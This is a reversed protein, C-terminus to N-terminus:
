QVPGRIFPLQEIAELVTDHQLRIQRIYNARQENQEPAFPHHVNATAGFGQVRPGEPAPIENTGTKITIHPLRNKYQLEIKVASIGGFAARWAGDTMLASIVAEEAARGEPGDGTTFTFNFGVAHYEVHQLVALFKCVVEPLAQAWPLAEPQRAQVQLRTEELVIIVGNRYRVQALPPTVFTDAPEWDAPVIHNRVLFDPNLLRPNNSTAIVVVSVNALRLTLPM